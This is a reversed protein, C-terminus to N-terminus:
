HRPARGHARTSETTSKVISLFAGPNHDFYVVTDFLADLDRERSSDTVEAGADTVHFNRVLTESYDPEGRAHFSVDQRTALSLLHSASIGAVVRAPDARGLLSRGYMPRESHLGLYELITPAIDIQGAVQATDLALPADSKPFKVLLPIKALESDRHNWLTLNFAHDATIIILANDYRGIRKLHAILQALDRDTCHASNIMNKTLADVKMSDPFPYPGCTTSEFMGPVHMQNTSIHAFIPKSPPANDQSDAEAAAFDFLEDDTMFDFLVNKKGARMKVADYVHSPEFGMKRFNDYRYPRLQSISIFAYSDYGNRALVDPLCGAGWVAETMTYQSCLVAIIGNFTYASSTYVNSFRRGERSLANFFPMVDRTLGPHLEAAPLTYLANFSEITILFIDPRRSAGTLAAPATVSAPLLFRAPRVVPASREHEVTRVFRPLNELFNFAGYEALLASRSHPHAWLAHTNVAVLLLTVVAIPRTAWRLSQSREVGRALLTAYGPMAILTVYHLGVAVALVLCAPSALVIAAGEQTMTLNGYLVYANLPLSTAAYYYHDVVRFLVVFTTLPVVVAMFLTRTWKWRAAARWTGVCVLFLAVDSLLGTPFDGIVPLSYAVYRNDTTWRYYAFFALLPANLVVARYISSWRTAIGRDPPIPAVSM